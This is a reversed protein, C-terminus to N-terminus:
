DLFYKRIKRAAKKYAHKSVQKYQEEPRGPYFGAYGSIKEVNINANVVAASDPCVTVSQDPDNVTVRFTEPVVDTKMQTNLLLPKSPNQDPIGAMAFKPHKKHRKMHYYVYVKDTVENKQGTATIEVPKASINVPTSICATGKANNPYFANGCKALFYVYGTPGTVKWAKVGDDGLNLRTYSSSLSGDGMNGTTGSPLNASTINSAEVDKAGNMFGIGSLINNFEAMERNDKDANRKIAQYVQQKTSMNKIFPFEPNTGLRDVEKPAGVNYFSYLSNRNQDQAYTAAGIMMLGFILLTRKM